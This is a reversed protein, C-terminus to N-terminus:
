GDIDWRHSGAPDGAGMTMATPGATKSSTTNKTPTGIVWGLNGLIQHCFIHTFIQRNVVYSNFIAMLLPNVWKFHHNKM